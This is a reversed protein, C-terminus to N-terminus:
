AEGALRLEIVKTVVTAGLTDKGDRAQQEIQEIWWIRWATDWRRFTILNSNYKKDKAALTCLAVNYMQARAEDERDQEQAALMAVEDDFEAEQDPAEGVIDPVDPAVPVVPAEPLKVHLGDQRRGPLTKFAM